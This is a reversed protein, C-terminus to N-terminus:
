TTAVANPVSMPANRFRSELDEATDRAHACSLERRPEQIASREAQLASASTM